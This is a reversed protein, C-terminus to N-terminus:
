GSQRTVKTTPGIRRHPSVQSFTTFSSISM